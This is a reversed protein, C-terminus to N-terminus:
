IYSGPVPHSLKCKKANGCTGGVNDPCEHGYICEEGYPCYNLKHFSHCPQRKCNYSLASLQAPSLCHDHSYECDTKTCKQPNLYFMNCARPTLHKISLWLAINAYSDFMTCLEPEVNKYHLVPLSPSLQPPSAPKRTMPLVGDAAVQAYKKGPDIKREMFLEGFKIHPFSLTDFRELEAAFATGELLMVKGPAVNETELKSLIRAYGNDHSAGLIINCCQPMAAYM